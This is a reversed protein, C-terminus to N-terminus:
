RSTSTPHEPPDLHRIFYILTLASAAAFSMGFVAMLYPAASAFM